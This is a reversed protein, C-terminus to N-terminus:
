KNLKKVCNWKGCVDLCDTDGTHLVKLPYILRTRYYLPSTIDQQAGATEIEPEPHRGRSIYVSYIKALFKGGLIAGM